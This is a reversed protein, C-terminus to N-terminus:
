GDTTFFQLIVQMIGIILLYIISLLFMFWSLNKAMLNYLKSMRDKGVTGIKMENNLYNYLLYLQTLLIVIGLREFNKYEEPLNGSDITKRYIANLTILWAICLILLIIPGGHKLVEFVTKIGKTNTTSNKYAIEFILLGLLSFGITGYGWLGGNNKGLIFMLLIGVLTFGFVIKVDYRFLKPKSAGISLRSQPKISNSSSALRSTM